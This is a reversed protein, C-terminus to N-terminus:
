HVSTDLAKRAASMISAASYEADEIQLALTLPNVEGIELLAHALAFLRELADPDPIPHQVTAPDVFVKGGKASAHAAALAYTPYHTATNDTTVVVATMDAGIPLHQTSPSSGRALPSPTGADYEAILDDLAGSATTFTNYLQDRTAQWREVVSWVGHRLWGALPVIQADGTPAHDSARMLISWILDEAEAPLRSRELADDTLRGLRGMAVLVQDLQWASVDEFYLGPRHEQYWRPGQRVWLSAGM